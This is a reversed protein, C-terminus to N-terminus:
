QNLTMLKQKFQKTKEAVNDAQLIASIVAVGNANTEKLDHINDLSIGGAVFVPMSTLAKAKKVTEVSVIECADASTSPFMSCFSIYDLKNAAAWRVISLDNGCTIGCIFSRKIQQRVYTIDNPISDFHVGDLLTDNILEWEENILVPVDSRHALECIRDVLKLKNSSKTWNNWIQIIDVGGKLAEEVKQLLVQEGISPDVVLYIGGEINKMM